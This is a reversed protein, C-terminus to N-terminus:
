ELLRPFTALEHLLGQKTLEDYVTRAVSRDIRLRGVLDCFVLKAFSFAGEIAFADNSLSRLADNFAIDLENTPRREGIIAKCLQNGNRFKNSGVLLVFLLFDDLVWDADAKIKRRQLEEVVKAFAAEDNAIIAVSARDAVTAAEVSTYGEGFVLALAFRSTPTNRLDDIFQNRADLSVM